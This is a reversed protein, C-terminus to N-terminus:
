SPCGAAWLELYFLFDRTDILGKPEALDARPDGRVYANLYVPFDASDVDGDGDFDAPCEHVGGDMGDLKIALRLAEGANIRGHGTSEDFGPAGVDDASAEIAGKVQLPTLGPAVSAILAALGAVHPCAQSTGSKQCYTNEGPYYVTSDWTSWILVGPAAVDMEPGSSTSSWPADRNDTAGVCLVEPYRAPAAVPLTPSNGASAVVLMGRATAYIVADHLLTDDPGDPEVEFGLSVSAVEAGQDAAWMIAAALDEETGFGYKNLVTVPLISARWCVGAVGERTATVASAIGACHTGHSTYSDDTVDNDKVFNWGTLLKPSLDQHSASVGADIVAITVEGGVGLAWAEMAHIDAGPTGVLGGVEQGTNVLSYQENFYEDPPIPMDGQDSHDDHDDREGGFTSADDAHARTVGCVGAWEVVGSALAERVVLSADAGGGLQLIVTRDLGLSSALRADGPEFRLASRVALVDTLSDESLGLAEIAGWSSPDVCDGAGLGFGVGPMLRIAVRAPFHARDLESGIGGTALPAFVGYGLCGASVVGWSSKM